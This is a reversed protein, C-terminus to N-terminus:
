LTLFVVLFQILRYVFHTLYYGFLFIPGTLIARWWPLEFATRLMVIVYAGLLGIFGIWAMRPEVFPSLLFRFAPLVTMPAFVYYLMVFAMFHLAAAVHDILRYGKDITLLATVLAIFPVHVVIITKSIDAARLEYDNALAVMARSGNEWADIASPVGLRNSVMPEIWPSYFQLTIQDFLTIQFDSLSPILFYVVNAFLFLGIPSVFRRRQGVRYARALRGPLFLLSFLSPLVRGRMDTAEAFVERALARMRRDDDTLVKQGCAPCYSAGNPLTAGCNTCTQLDPEM